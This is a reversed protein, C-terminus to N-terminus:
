GTRGRVFPVGGTSGMSMSEGNRSRNPLGAGWCCGVAVGGSSGSASKSKPNSKSPSSARRAAPEGAEEGAAVEAVSAGPM